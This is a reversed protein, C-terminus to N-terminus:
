RPLQLVEVVGRSHDILSSHVLHIILITELFGHSSLFAGLPAM